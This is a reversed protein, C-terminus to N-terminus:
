SRILIENNKWAARDNLQTLWSPSWKSHSEYGMKPEGAGSNEGPLLRNIVAAVKAAAAPALENLLLAFRTHAGVLVRSRGRRCGDIIRAAAREVSTSLLPLSSSISFWAFERRYKGKIVANRPSGTRMPGPCVTTVLINKHKLEARLGDSLGALAFKSATYPLLHPVAIKGGISSINVIRGGGGAKMHPLAALTFYLPGFFHVAMADEFDELSMEDMPGVQIIGANNILVDVRGMTTVARAVAEVVEKQQRVDCSVTLVEAGLGALVREARKLEMLDRAILTLRAGQLALQRALELGLGRSGGTIIVSRGRFSFQRRPKGLAIGAAAGLVLASTLLTIRNKM